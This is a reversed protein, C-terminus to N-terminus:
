EEERLSWLDFDSYVQQEKKFARGQKTTMKIFLSYNNRSYETYKIKTIVALKGDTKKIKDGVKFPCLEEAIQQRIAALEERLVKIEKELEARRKELKNLIMVAVGKGDSVM